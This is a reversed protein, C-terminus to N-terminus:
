EGDAYKEPNIQGHERMSKGGFIFISPQFFGIPSHRGISETGAMYTCTLVSYQALYLLYNRGFEVRRICGM